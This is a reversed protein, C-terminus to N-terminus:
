IVVKVFTQLYYKISVNGFDILHGIIDIPNYTGVIIICEGGGVGVHTLHRLGM